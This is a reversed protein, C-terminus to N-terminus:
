KNIFKKGEKIYLSGPVLKGAKRGDLTYIEANDSMTRVNDIGDADEFVFNIAKSSSGSPLTVWCKGAPITMDMPITYFKVGESGNQLVYGSSVEQTVIAGHLNGQVVVGSEPYLAPDVTGSLTGSRGAESYLIYPTYASLSTAEYLYVNNEDNGNSTYAKVGDPIETAFPLICTNWKVSSNINLPLSTGSSVSVKDDITLEDAIWKSGEETNFFCNKVKIAAYGPKAYPTTKIYVRFLKGSKKAFNKLDQSADVVRLTNGNLINFSLKHSNYDPEADEEVVEDPNTVPYLGQNAENTLTVKAEGASTLVFEYGDPLEIDMTAATYIKSGELSVVFFKTKTNEGLTLQLESISVHDDTRDIIQARDTLAWLVLLFSLVIKKM